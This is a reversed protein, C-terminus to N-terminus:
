GALQRSKKRRRAFFLGATGCVLAAVSTPEPVAQINLLSSAQTTLYVNGTVPGAAIISGYMDQLDMTVGGFPTYITGFFDNLFGADILVDSHSEFLVNSALAATAADLNEGITVGNVTVELGSGFIADQEVFIRLPGNGIQLNLENSSGLDLSKFFYDGSSLTVTRQIATSFDRYSGPALSIDATAHINTTGAVFSTAVPFTVVGVTNPTNSLSGSVQATTSKSFTGGYAINGNVRASGDLDVNGNAFVNGNLITLLGQTYNGRTYMNGLTRDPRQIGYGFETTLNGAAYVDGQVTSYSELTVDSQSIIGFDTVVAAHLAAGQFAL